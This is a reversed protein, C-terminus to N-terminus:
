SEEQYECTQGDCSGYNACFMQYNICNPDRTDTRSSREARKQGRSKGVKYAVYTSLLGM